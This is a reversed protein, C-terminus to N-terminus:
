IRGAAALKAIIEAIRLAWVDWNLRTEYERRASVRLQAYRDPDNWLSEIVAAFDTADAKEPLVIGNAGNRVVDAVGGVDRTLAPTGYANAEAFVMPTCDKRTPLFLLDANRMLSRLRALDSSDAKSLYGHSHLWPKSPLNEPPSVGVLDVRLPIGKGALINAAAYVIDGGKREWEGGIFFLRCEDRAAAGSRVETRPVTEFNCGWSIVSVNEPRAGYHHIASDAAWRSSFSNHVSRVVSNREDEEARVGTAESLSWFVEHETRMLDYTSDSVNIVPVSGALEAVLAANVVGIVIVRKDGWQRALRSAFWRNLPQWYYPDIRGKSLRLLLRQLPLFWFSRSSRVIEMEPFKSKLASAMYYLTGSFSHVDLPNSSSLLVVKPSGNYLSASGPGIEM